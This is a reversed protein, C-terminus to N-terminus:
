SVEKNQVPSVIGGLFVQSLGIDAFSFLGSVMSSFLHIKSRIPKLHILADNNVVMIWCGKSEENM